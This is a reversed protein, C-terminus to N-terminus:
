VGCPILHISVWNIEHGQFEYRIIDADNFLELPTKDRGSNFKDFVRSLLTYIPNNYCEMNGGLNEPMGEISRLSNFECHLSFGVSKPAGILNVLKNQRCYFERGVESPGGKLSTIENYSCNFDGGVEKPGGELNILKNDGCNFGGGVKNPAGELSTLENYECRFSGTVVGFKLPLKKLKKMMLNVNGNVNVLGNVVKYNKIGYKLALAFIKYRNLYRM